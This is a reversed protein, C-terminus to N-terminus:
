CSENSSISVKIVPSLSHKDPKEVTLDRKEGVGARRSMTSKPLLHKHEVVDLEKTVGPVAARWAGRNMPTEWALISSHNGNGGGPSRGLWPSFGHKLTEQM